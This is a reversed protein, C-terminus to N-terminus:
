WFNPHIFFHCNLLGESNGIDPFSEEINFSGFSGFMQKMMDDLQHFIGHSMNLLEDNEDCCGNCGPEIIIEYNQQPFNFDEVWNGYDNRKECDEDIRRM